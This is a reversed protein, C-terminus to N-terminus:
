LFNINIKVEIKAIAEIKIANFKGTVYLDDAIIISDSGDLVGFRPPIALKTPRSTPSPDLLVTIAKSTRLDLFNKISKAFLRSAM